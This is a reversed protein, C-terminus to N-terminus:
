YIGAQKMYCKAIGVSPDATGDGTAGVSDITGCMTADPPYVPFNFGTCTPAKDCREKCNRDEYGVMGAQADKGTWKGNKGPNSGGMCFGKSATYGEVLISTM